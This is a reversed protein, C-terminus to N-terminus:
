LVTLSVISTEAPTKETRVISKEAHINQKYGYIDAHINQRIDMSTEPSTQSSDTM